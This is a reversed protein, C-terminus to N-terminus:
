TKSDSGIWVTSMKTRVLIPAASRASCSWTRPYAASAKCPSIPWAARSLTMRRRRVPSISDEDGGVDGRAAQIYRKDAMHDVVVNGPVWFRIHVPNTPGATGSTPALCDQQDRRAFLTQQTFNLAVDTLPQPRHLEGGLRRHDRPADYEEFIL